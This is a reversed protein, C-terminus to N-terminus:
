NKPEKFNSLVWELHKGIWEKVPIGVTEGHYCHNKGRPGKLLAVLLSYPIGKIAPRIDTRDCYVTYLYTYSRRTYTVSFDVFRRLIQLIGVISLLQQLCVTSRKARLFPFKYYFINNLCRSVLNDQNTKPFFQCATTTKIMWLIQSLM